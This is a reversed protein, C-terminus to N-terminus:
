WAITGSGGKSVFWFGKYAPITPLTVDSAMGADTVHVWASGTYIYNGAFTDGGLPTITDGKAFTLGSVKDGLAVPSGTPNCVLYSMPNDKSGATITVNTSAAVKGYVAIQCPEAPVANFSLWIASGAAITKGNADGSPIPIGDMTTSSVIDLGVWGSQQLEWATYGSAADYVYLHSQLPINNTCVLEGAAIPGGSGLSAFQVPIINNKQSLSISTVGIQPSFDAAVAAVAFSAVAISLIKKM